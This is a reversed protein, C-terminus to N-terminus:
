RVVEALRAFADAALANLIVEDRRRRHPGALGHGYPPSLTATIEARIAALREALRPANNTRTERELDTM